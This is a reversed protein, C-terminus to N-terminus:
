CYSCIFSVCELIFIFASAMEDSLTLYAGFLSNLLFPYMATAHIFDHTKDCFPSINSKKQWYRYCMPTLSNQITSVYEKIMEAITEM